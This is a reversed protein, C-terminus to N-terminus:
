SATATWWLDIPLNQMGLKQAQEEGERERRRDAKRRRRAPPSPSSERPRDLPDPTPVDGRGMSRKRGAAEDVSRRKMSRPPVAGPERGAPAGAPGPEQSRPHISKIWCTKRVPDFSALMPGPVYLM